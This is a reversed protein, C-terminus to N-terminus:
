KKRPYLKYSPFCAEMFAEVSLSQEKERGGAERTNHCHESRTASWKVCAAGFKSPLQRRSRSRVANQPTRIKQIYWVMSVCFGASDLWLATAAPQARMEPTEVVDPLVGNSLEYLGGLSSALSSHGIRWLLAPLEADEPLLVTRVVLLTPYVGSSLSMGRSTCQCCKVFTLCAHSLPLNSIYLQTRNSQLIRSTV